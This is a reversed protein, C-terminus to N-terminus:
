PRVSLNLANSAEGNVAIVLPYAGEWWIRYRSTRKHLSVFTPTLGLYIYEAPRGGITISHTSTVAPLPDTPSPTGTTVNGATPGVGVLYVVVYDGPKAPNAPKNLSGDPNMGLAQNPGCSPCALLGPAAQVVQLSTGLSPVGSLSVAVQAAGLPTEMPLQANIQTPSVFWIPAPKGNVTVSTAGLTTPWTESSTVLTSTALGQGYVSFIGGPSVKPSGSGANSAGSVMPASSSVRTLKRVRFAASVYLNGGGDVVVSTPSGVNALLASGGDGGSSLSSGTGAITRITGDRTVLRLRNNRKDAIYVNGDSDVAIGEPTNLQAATAPGGDGSFGAIGTGAFVSPSGQASIRVPIATAPHTPSTFTAPRM